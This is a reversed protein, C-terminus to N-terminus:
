WLFRGGGNDCGGDIRSFSVIEKRPRVASVVLFLFVAAAAAAAAAAVVM